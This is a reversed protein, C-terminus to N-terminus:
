PDQLYLDDTGNLKYINYLVGGNVNPITASQKTFCDDRHPLGSRTDGPFLKGKYSGYCYTEQVWKLCHDPVSGGPSGGGGTRPAAPDAFSDSSSSFAGYAADTMARPNGSIANGLQNLMGYLNMDAQSPIYINSLSPWINAPTLSGGILGNRLKWANLRALHAARLEKSTLSQTKVSSKTICEGHGVGGNPEGTLKVAAVPFQAQAQANKM